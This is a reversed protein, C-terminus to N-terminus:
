DARDATSFLTDIVPCDPLTAADCQRVMGALVAEIAEPANTPGLRGALIFPRGPDLILAWDFTIGTGGHQRSSATHFLPLSSSPIESLHITVGDVGVPIPAISLYGAETAEAAGDLSRHGHAQLGSAGGQEAAQLAGGPASDVTVIFTAIPVGDALDRAQGITLGRPSDQALVLGIADAGGTVAADVAEHTTMGCIKVWTM